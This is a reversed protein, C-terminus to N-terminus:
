SGEPLCGSGAILELVAQDGAIVPRGAAAFLVRIEAAPSLVSMGPVYRGPSPSDHFCRDSIPQGDLSPMLAVHITVALDDLDMAILAARGVHDVPLVAVFANEERGGVANDVM